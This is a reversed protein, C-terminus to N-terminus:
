AAAAGGPLRSRDTTEGRGGAEAARGKPDVRDAVLHGSREIWWVGDDPVATDREKVFNFGAFVVAAVTLLSLLVAVFRAQSERNMPKPM